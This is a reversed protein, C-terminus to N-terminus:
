HLCYNDVGGSLALFIWFVKILHEADVAHWKLVKVCVHFRAKDMEQVVQFPSNWQENFIVIKEHM